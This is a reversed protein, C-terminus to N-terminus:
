HAKLRRKARRDITGILMRTMDLGHDDAKIPEENKQQNPGNNWVYGEYEQETRFPKFNERLNEDIERLSDEIYYVRPRGDPAIRLREMVAQLGDKVKKYAPKFRVGTHKELTARDEADHDCVALVPAPDQNTYRMIDKAHDEVLRQSKYIQKDLYLRGDNDRLWQGWVFPNTYGFDVSWLHDWKRYGPPLANRQIVHIASDWGEFIIGEAAAWKGYLLRQKRAGTLKELKSLYNRGFETWEKKDQDYLVPNDEHKSDLFVVNGAIWRQRLWHWPVDPNTDSLLQQYPMVNNRLRTSLMEYDVIVLENCEQVYVVDFETSMIRGPKDLGRVIVESGNPFVYSTRHHRSVPSLCPHGFPVVREEWTVLASETLSARTKRVILARIGPYKECLIYLKTLNAISKGTGAPGVLCVEASKDYMVELAAGYPRYPRSDASFEEVTNLTGDM